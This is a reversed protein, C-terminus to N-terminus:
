APRHSRSRTLFWGTEFVQLPVFGAGLGIVYPWAAESGVATAAWAGWGSAFLRTLMCGVLAVIFVSGPRGHVAAMWGGGAVGTATMVLWGLLSWRLALEGSSMTYLLLALGATLGVASGWLCYKLAGSVKM